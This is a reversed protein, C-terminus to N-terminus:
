RREWEPQESRWQEHDAGASAAQERLVYARVRDRLSDVAMADRVVIVARPVDPFVIADNKARGDCSGNEVRDGCSRWVAQVAARHETALQHPAVSTFADPGGRSRDGGSPRRRAAQPHGANQRADRDCPQVSRDPQAVHAIFSGVAQVVAATEASFAPGAESRMGPLELVM